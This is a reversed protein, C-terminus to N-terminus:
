RASHDWMSGISPTRTRSSAPQIAPGPAVAIIASRPASTILTSGSRPSAMRPAVPLRLDRGAGGRDVGTELMIIAALPANGDGDVLRFPRVQDPPEHRAGVDEDRVQQRGPLRLVTEILAESNATL